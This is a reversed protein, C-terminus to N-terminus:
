STPLLEYAASFAFSNTSFIQGRHRVKCINGILFWSGNDKRAEMVQHLNM